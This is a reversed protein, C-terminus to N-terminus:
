TKKRSNVSKNTRKVVFNVPPRKQITSFSSRVKRNVISTKKQKVNELYKLAGLGLFVYENRFKFRMYTQNYFVYKGKYILWTGTPIVTTTPNTKIGEDGDMPLCPLYTIGDGDDELYVYVKQNFDFEIEPEKNSSM